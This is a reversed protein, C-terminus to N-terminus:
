SIIKSSFPTASYIHLLSFSYLRRKVSKYIGFSFNLPQLVSHKLFLGTSSDPYYNVYVSNLKLNFDKNIRDMLKKIYPHIPHAKHTRGSFTYDRGMTCHLRKTRNSYSTWPLQDKLTKFLIDTNIGYAEIIYVEANLLISKM